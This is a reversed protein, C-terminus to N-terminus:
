TGLPAVRAMVGLGAGSAHTRRRRARVRGVLDSLGQEFDFQPIYGLLRRARSIDAVYDGTEVIEFERPWPTFELPPAGTLERIRSAADLFSIGEGRGINVITNRASEVTAALWLADVLDPVYLYDRRQHGDGFVTIAEGALARAIMTNIVGYPKDASEPDPGFPNSIRLITYTLDGGAAGIRHYHEVCLKHAAYMSDPATPHDETVAGPGTRGYVLRSSAFVVHPRTGARRCADLLQLQIRCTGDLSAMPARNSRVAGSAGALSFICDVEGIARVLADFQPRDADADVQLWRVRDRWVCEADRFAARSVVTVDCGEALLRPVLHSGIFGRAGWVLVARPTHARSTM